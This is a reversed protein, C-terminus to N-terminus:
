CGCRLRCSTWSSPSKRASPRSSLGTPRAYGNRSNWSMASTSGSSSPRPLARKAGASRTHAKVSQTGGPVNEAEASEAEDFLALQSGDIRESSAGYRKALLANLRETLYANDRELRAVRPGTGLWRSDLCALVEDREEPGLVPEGFVLYRERWPRLAANGSAGM